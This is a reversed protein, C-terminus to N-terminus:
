ENLTGLICTLFYYYQCCHSTVAVSTFAATFGYYPWFSRLVKALGPDHVPTADPPFHPPQPPGPGRVVDRQYTAPVTGPHYLPGAPVPEDRGCRGGGGDGDCAAHPVSGGPCVCLILHFKM